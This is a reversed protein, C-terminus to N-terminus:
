IWISHNRKITSKRKFKCTSKMQVSPGQYFNCFIGVTPCLVLVFVVYTLYDDGVLPVSLSYLTNFFYPITVAMRGEPEPRSTSGVSLTSSSSCPSSTCQIGHLFQIASYIPSICFSSLCSQVFVPLYCVVHPIIFVCPAPFPSIDLM